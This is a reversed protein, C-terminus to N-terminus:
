FKVLGEVEKEAPYMLPHIEQQHHWKPPGWVLHFQFSSIRATEKHGCWMRDLTMVTILNVLRQWVQIYQLVLYSTYTLHLKFM